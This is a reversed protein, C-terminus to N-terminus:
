AAGDLQCNKTARIICRHVNRKGIRKTYQM